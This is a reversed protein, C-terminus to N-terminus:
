IYVAPPRPSHVVGSGLAATEGRAPNAMLCIAGFSLLCSRRVHTDGEEKRLRWRVNNRRCGILEDEKGSWEIFETRAREAM